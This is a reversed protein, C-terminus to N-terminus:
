RDAIWKVPILHIGTWYLYAVLSNAFKGSRRYEGALARMQHLIGRKGSIARDYDACRLRDSISMRIAKIRDKYIAEKNLVRGGGPSYTALAEAVYAVPYRAALKFYLELDESTRLDSNYGGVNIIRERKILFTTSFFMHGAIMMHTYADNLIGTVFPHADMGNNIFYNWSSISMESQSPNFTMDHFSLDANLGICEVLQRDLKNPLWTDDSDLFALWRGRSAEIGKNRAASPGANAQSIYVIKDLYPELIHKTSDTSGDDIVIIEHDFYTQVLVSEIAKTVYEARNYTPIIVSVNPKDQRIM